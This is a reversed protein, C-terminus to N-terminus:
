VTVGCEPCAEHEAHRLDYGCALCLGRRRRILRRLAFPGPILLWLLMAYFFTNVAFGTWIPILPIVRPLGVNSRGGRSLEIWGRTALQTPPWKRSDYRPECWLTLTPWGCAVLTRLEHILVGGRIPYKSTQFERTPLVITGWEFRLDDLSLGSAEIPWPVRHALVLTLGPRSLREISAESDRIFAYGNGGLTPDLWAACGLAVGVNVVAGALLFIAAILLRRRM